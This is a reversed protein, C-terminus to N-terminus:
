LIPEINNLLILEYRILCIYVSFIFIILHYGSFYKLYTFNKFTLLVLLPVSTATFKVWFFLTVDSELLIAMFPNVEIAGHQLLKLTLYADTVSLLIAGLTILSLWHEHMDVIYGSTNCAQRQVVKRRGAFLSYWISTFSPKRRDQISRKCDAYAAGDSSAQNM